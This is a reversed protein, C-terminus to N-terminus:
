QWSNNIPKPPSMKEVIVPFGQWNNIKVNKKKKVYLVLEKGKIGVAVFWSENKTKSYLSNAAEKIKYESILKRALKKASQLSSKGHITTPTFLVVDKKSYENGGIHRPIIEVTVKDEKGIWNQGEKEWKIM